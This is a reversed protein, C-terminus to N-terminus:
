ASSPRGAVPTRAVRRMRERRSSAADAPARGAAEVGGMGGRAAPRADPEGPEEEQEKNKNKKLGDSHNSALELMSRVQNSVALVSDESLRQAERISQAIHLNEIVKHTPLEEIDVRVGAGAVHTVGKWVTRVQSNSQADIAELAKALRAAEDNNARESPVAVHVAGQICGPVHFAVTLSDTGESAFPRAAEEFFHIWMQLSNKM